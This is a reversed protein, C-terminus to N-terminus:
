DKWIKDVYVVPIQGCFGLLVWRDKLKYSLVGEKRPFSPHEYAKGKIIVKKENWKRWDQLVSDPLALLLSCNGNQNLVGVSGIKGMNSIDLFGSAECLQGIICGSNDQLKIKDETQSICGVLVSLILIILYFRSRNQM